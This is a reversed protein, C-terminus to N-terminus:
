PQLMMVLAEAAGDVEGARNQIPKLYAGSLVAATSIMERAMDQQEAIGEVSNM